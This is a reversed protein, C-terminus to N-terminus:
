RLGLLYQENQHNKLHNMLATASQLKRSNGRMGKLLINLEETDGQICQVLIQLLNKQNSDVLRFKKNVEHKDVFGKLLAKSLNDMRDCIRAELMALNQKKKLKEIDRNLTDMRNQASKDNRVLDTEMQTLSRMIAQADQPIKNEFAQLQQTHEHVRAETDIARREVIPIETEYKQKLADFENFIYNVRGTIAEFETEMKQIQGLTQARLAAISEHMKVLAQEQQKYLDRQGSMQTKLDEIQKNQIVMKSRTSRDLDIAAREVKQELKLLLNSNFSANALSGRKSFSKRPTQTNEKSQSDGHSASGGPVLLQADSDNQSEEVRSLDDDESSSREVLNMSSVIERVKNEITLSLEMKTQDHHKNLADKYEKRLTSELQKSTDKIQQKIPEFKQDIEKLRENQRQQEKDLPKFFGLILDSIHDDNAIQQLKLVRYHVEELM